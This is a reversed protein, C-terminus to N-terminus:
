QVKFALHRNDKQVFHGLLLAVIVLISGVCIYVGAAYNKISRCTGLPCCEKSLEHSPAGWLGGCAYGILILSVTYLLIISYRTSQVIIWYVGFFQSEKLYNIVGVIFFVSICVIFASLTVWKTGGGDSSQVNEQLLNRAHECMTVNPVGTCNCLPHSDSASLGDGSTAFSLCIVVAGALALFVAMYVVKKRFVHYTNGSDEVDAIVYCPSEETAEIFCGRTWSMGKVPIYDDGVKQMSSEPIIAHGFVSVFVLSAAGSWTYWWFGLRAQCGYLTYMGRAAPSGLVAILFGSLFTITLCAGLGIFRICTAAKEYMKVEQSKLEMANKYADKSRHGRTPPTFSGKTHDVVCYIICSFVLTIYSFLLIPTLTRASAAGSGGWYVIKTPAICQEIDIFSWLFAYMIIGFIASLATLLVFVIIKKEYGALTKWSKIM